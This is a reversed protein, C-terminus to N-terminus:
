EAEEFIMKRIKKDNENKATQYDSRTKNMEDWYPKLHPAYHCNRSRVNEKCICGDGDPSCQEDPKDFFYGQAIDYCQAGNDCDWNGICWTYPGHQCGEYAMALQDGAQIVHPSLDCHKEIIQEKCMCGLESMECYDHEEMYYDHEIQYCRDKGRCEYNTMCWRVDGGACEDKIAQIAGEAQEKM